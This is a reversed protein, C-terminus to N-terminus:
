SVVTDVLLGVTLPLGTEREFHRIAQPKDDELVIFDDQKLHNVLAGRADRVSCLVNVLNVDVRIPVEDQAPVAAAALLIM